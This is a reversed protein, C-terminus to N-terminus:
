RRNTHKLRSGFKSSCKMRITTNTKIAETVEMKVAKLAAEEAADLDPYTQELRIGGIKIWYSPPEPPQSDTGIVIDRYKKM